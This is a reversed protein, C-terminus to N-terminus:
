EKATSRDIGRHWLKAEADVRAEVARDYSDFTGLNYHIGNAIIQARWKNWTTCWSVGRVGSTNTSHTKCKQINRAQTTINLNGRENNKGRGDEHDVIHKPPIILGMCETVIQVHMLVTAKKGGHTVSRGAYDKAITNWKFGCLLFYDCDSVQTKSGDSLVIERVTPM